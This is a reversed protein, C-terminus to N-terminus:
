RSYRSNRSSASFEIGTTSATPTTVPRAPLSRGIAGAPSSATKDSEGKLTVTQDSKATTVSVGSMSFAGDSFDPVELDYVVSGSSGGSASAVRIQYRGEPLDLQSVVRLGRGRVRERDATSM